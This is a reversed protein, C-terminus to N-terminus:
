RTKCHGAEPWFWLIQHSQTGTLIRSPGKLTNALSFSQFYLCNTFMINAAGIINRVCLSPQTSAMLKPTWGGGTGGVDIMTEFSSSFNQDNVIHATSAPKSWQHLRGERFNGLYNVSVRSSRLLPARHAAGFELYRCIHFQELCFVWIYYLDIYLHHQKSHLYLTPLSFCLLLHRVRTEDITPVLGARGCTM